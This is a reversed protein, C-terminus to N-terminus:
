ICAGGKLAPHNVENVEIKQQMWFAQTAVHGKRVYKAVSRRFERYHFPGALRVVYGECPDGEFIPHYLGRVQEEAEWVGRWLVPVTTLGLLSAWEVTEDWSLCVNRENWVSFALFWDRLHHYHISHKAYVNEGCVRWGEPIDYGMRGHLAKVWSRSPHPAYELSRAHLYDRYLSTNEGDHKVTVVVEKGKFFQEPNAMMRDDNTLGPSWPLHFTRPYKVRSTFLHLVPALVKQVGEDDFLEGRLRQGNDLIPNGWKDYRGEALHEPLVIRAIGAAERVEECSILTAEAAMHHCVCLSAGNELYYGGNSWLRREVVHHVDVAPRKCIVCVGGDRALVSERFQDRTLLEQATPGSPCM